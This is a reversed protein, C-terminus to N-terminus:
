RTCSKVKRPLTMSSGQPSHTFASLGIALTASRTAAAFARGPCTVIPVAPTPLSSWKRTSAKCSAVCVSNEWTGNLPVGGMMVPTSDRLRSTPDKLM